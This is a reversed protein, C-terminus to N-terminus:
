PNSYTILTGYITGSGYVSVRLRYQYARPLTYYVGTADPNNITYCPFWPAPDTYSRCEILVTAVSSSASWIQADISPFKTANVSASTSTSTVGNLVLGDAKMGLPLFFFLGIAILKKM